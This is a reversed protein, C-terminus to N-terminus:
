RGSSSGSLLHERLADALIRHGRRDPHLPDRPNVRLDEIGAALFADLVDLTTLGARRAEMEVIRHVVAFPYETGEAVLWPVVVVVAEFGHAVALSALEEFAYRIRGVRDPDGYWGAPHRRPVGQMLSLLEHEDASIPAIREAYERRFLERDNRRRSWSEQQGIELRDAVFHALRFRFLPNTQRARVQDMLGLNPSVSGADNLCYAVIVVDPQYALGDRRLRAVEQLIDYGGVALNLVEYSGEALLLDHLQWAFTAEVELYNGFAISDGLVLVRTGQYPGPTGERGRYGRDNISVTVDWAEALAGPTLEYGLDPDESPRLVLERGEGVAHLPSYGIARLVVEAALLAMLISLAILALRSLFGRV